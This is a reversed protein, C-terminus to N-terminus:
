MKSNYHSINTEKNQIHGKFKIFMFAENQM